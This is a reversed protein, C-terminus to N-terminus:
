SKFTVSRCLERVLQGSDWDNPEARYFRITQVVPLCCYTRNKNYRYATYEACRDVSSVARHPVVRLPSQFLSDIGRLPDISGKLVLKDENPVGRFIVERVDTQNKVYASAAHADKGDSQELARSFVLFDRCHLFIEEQQQLLILEDEPDSSHVSVTSRVRYFSQRRRMNLGVM